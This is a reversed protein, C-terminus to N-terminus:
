RRGYKRILNYVIAIALIIILLGIWGSLVSTKVTMRFSASANAYSNRATFTTLYDGAITKDPVSLSVTINQTKGPELRQIKLPEFTATWKSPTQATLELEDLPLTGTNTLTLVLKKSKGETIEDSLRGTPTTLQLEYNGKVVAELDLLLSEQNSVATVPIKYKGPKATPSAMIEISVELTKGQDVKLATVQNGEARFVAYWGSPLQPQLEYVQEKTSGNHLSASYRFPTKVESEINVLRATLSSGNEAQTRYPHFCIAFLFLFLIQYSSTSFGRSYNQKYSFFRALM